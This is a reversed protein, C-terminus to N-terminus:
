RSTSRFSSPPFLSARDPRLVPKCLTQKNRRRASRLDQRHKAQLERSFYENDNRPDEYRLYYGSSGAFGPMTNTEIPYGEETVWNKARALPLEGNETPKYEDISPLMLPLKSEDMAYPM